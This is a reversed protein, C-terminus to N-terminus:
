LAAAMVIKVEDWSLGLSRLGKAVLESAAERAQKKGARGGIRLGRAVDGLLLENQNVTTAKVENM